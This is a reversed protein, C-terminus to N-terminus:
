HRRGKAVRRVGKFLRNHSKRSGLLSQCPGSKRQGPKQRQGRRGRGQRRKAKSKSKFAKKKGLRFSGSTGKGTVKKLMGKQVLNQLARKFRWSNRNMNYGTTTVAKKLAALSVRSRVGKDSVARLIVQSMSPKRPTQPSSYPETESKSPDGSTSADQNVAVAANPDASPSALSTDRQM